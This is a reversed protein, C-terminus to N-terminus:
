ESSRVLRVGLFEGRFGTTLWSRTAVRVNKASNAWSGGRDVRYTVTDPRLAVEPWVILVSTAQQDSTWEWVNGSMDCLGYGNRQKGCVPHTTNGSNSSTWAVATADDSGAYM